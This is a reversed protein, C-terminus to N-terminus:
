LSWSEFVKPGFRSTFKSIVLFSLNNCGTFADDGISTVSKPIDISTLSKCNFFAGEGINVVSNPIKISKLSECREFAYEGICTVNDPVIYNTEKAMYSILTTKDRNFLVDHEYVFAKSENYM